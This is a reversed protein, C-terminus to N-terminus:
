QNLKIIKFRDFYRREKDTIVMQFMDSAFHTINIKYKHIQPDIAMEFIMSGSTNFLILDLPKREQAPDFEVFFFYEAPNPYVEVTYANTYEPDPIDTIQYLIPQHFGQTFQDNGKTYTETMAEGITWSLMYGENEQHDGATAVVERSIAQGSIQFTAFTVVFIVVIVKSIIKLM